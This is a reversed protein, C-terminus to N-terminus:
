LSTQGGYLQQRTRYRVKGLTSSGSQRRLTHHGSGPFHDGRNQSGTWTSNKSSFQIFRLAHLGTMEFVYNCMGLNGEGPTAWDLILTGFWSEYRAKGERGSWGFGANM